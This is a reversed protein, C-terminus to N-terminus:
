RTAIREMRPRGSGLVHLLAEGTDPDIDVVYSGPAVSIWFTSAVRRGEPRSGRGRGEGVEVRAFHGPDRRVVSRLVSFTDGVIAAPMSLVPVLWRLRLGWAHHASVRGAVALAGCPLSVAAAVILEATSVASLSVVWVGLCLAWWLLAEAVRLPWRRM